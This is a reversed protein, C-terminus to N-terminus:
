KEASNPMVSHKDIKAPPRPTRAPSWRFAALSKPNRQHPHPKEVLLSIEPLVEIGRAPLLFRKFVIIKM